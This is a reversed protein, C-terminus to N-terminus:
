EAMQQYRVPEVLKLCSSSNRVHSNVIVFFRRCCAQALPKAPMSRSSRAADAHSLVHHSEKLRVVEFGAKRLAAIVQDGTLRPLKTM